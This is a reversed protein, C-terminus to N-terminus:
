RHEGFVHRLATAIEGVTALDKAANMIPPMLNDSTKAATEIQKLATDVREANRSARLDRLRDTRRHRRDLDAGM